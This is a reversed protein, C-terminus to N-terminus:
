AAKKQEQVEQQHWWDIGSKDPMSGEDPEKIDRWQLKGEYLMRAYELLLDAIRPAELSFYASRLVLRQAGLKREKYELDRQAEDKNMHMTKEYQQRENEIEVALKAARSEIANLANERDKRKWEVKSDGPENLLAFVEEKSLEASTMDAVQIIDGLLRDQIVQEDGEERSAARKLWWERLDIIKGFTAGHKEVWEESDIGMEKAVANEAKFANAVTEGLEDKREEDNNNVAELIDEALRNNHKEISRFFYGYSDAWKEPDKGLGHDMLTKQIQAREKLNFKRPMEKAREGTFDPEAMTKEREPM